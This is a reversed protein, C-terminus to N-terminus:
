PPLHQYPETNVLDNTTKLISDGGFYFNISSYLENYLSTINLIFNLDLSLYIYKLVIYQCLVLVYLPKINTNQGTNNHHTYQM